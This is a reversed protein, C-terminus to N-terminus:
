FAPPFSLTLIISKLLFQFHEKLGAGGIQRGDQAGQKPTNAFFFAHVKIKAPRLLQKKLSGFVHENV